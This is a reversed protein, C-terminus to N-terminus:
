DEDTEVPTAKFALDFAEKLTDARGIQSTHWMWLRHQKNGTYKPNVNIPKTSCGPEGNGPFRMFSAEYENGREDKFTESKGTKTVRDIVDKPTRMEGWGRLDVEYQGDVYRADFTSGKRIWADLQGDPASAGTLYMDYIGKKSKKPNDFNCTGYVKDYPRGGAAFDEAVHRLAEDAYPHEGYGLLKGHRGKEIRMVRLGGGSMFAHMVGGKRLAGEIVEFKKEDPLKRAM